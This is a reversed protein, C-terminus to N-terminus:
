ENIKKDIINNIMKEFEAPDVMQTLKINEAELEKVKNQLKKIEENRFYHPISPSTAFSGGIKSIVNYDNFGDALKELDEVTEVNEFDDLLNYLKDLLKINNSKKLLDLSKNIDILKIIPEKEGYRHSIIFCYISLLCANYKASMGLRENTMGLTYKFINPELYFILGRHDAPDLNYCFTNNQILFSDLINNFQKIEYTNLFIRTKQKEEPSINPLYLNLYFDATLDDYNYLKKTQELESKIAPNNPLDIYIPKNAEYNGQKTIKGKLYEKILNNLIEPKPTATIEELDDLQELYKANIRFSYPKKNEKIFKPDIYKPNSM